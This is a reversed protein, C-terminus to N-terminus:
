RHTTHKYSPHTTLILDLQKDKRTPFDVQQELGNDAFIDLFSQNVRTSTQNGTITLDVWNPM